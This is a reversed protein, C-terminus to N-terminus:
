QKQVLETVAKNLNQTAAVLEALSWSNNKVPEAKQIAKRTRKRVSKKPTVPAISTVNGEGTELWNLSVDLVNALVRFACNSPRRTGLEIASLHNPSIGVKRALEMQTWGKIQRTNRIRQGRTM